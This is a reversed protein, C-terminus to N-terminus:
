RTYNAGPNTNVTAGLDDVIAVATVFIKLALPVRSGLLALVGLAFAIDTAMPIGWGAASPRGARAFLGRISIRTDSPWFGQDFQLSPTQLAVDALTRIAEKEIFDENLVSVAIPVEQLTQPRKTATVIIRDEQALASGASLACIATGTLLIGSLSAKSSSFKM